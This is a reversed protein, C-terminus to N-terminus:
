NLDLGMFPLVKCLTPSGCIKASHIFSEILPDILPHALSRAPSFIESLCVTESMLEQFESEGIESMPRVAKSQDQNRVVAKSSRQRKQVQAPDQTDYM